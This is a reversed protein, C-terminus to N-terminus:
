ATKALLIRMKEYIPIFAPFAKCVIQPLNDTHLDNLCRKRSKVSNLIFLINSGGM